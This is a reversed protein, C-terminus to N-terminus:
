EVNSVPLIMTFETGSGPKSEVEIKGHHGHVINQVTTLGLGSGGKKVSFFPEFLQHMDEQSIGRGNDKIIIKVQDDVEQVNLELIGKDPEMAEIANICLNLLAIKFQEGDLTLELANDPYSEKLSMNKLKIRDKVLLMTESILRVIPQRVLVLDKPKSSNLLDNILKGIRNSSRELINLYIDSDAVDRTIDKLEELALTINTLPNRIEHAITRAIKGTMSLKEAALIEKETQKRRTIDRIVGLYNRQQREEDFLSVCNILCIKKIGTNTILNVELEDMKEDSQLVKEFLIFDRKSFFLQQISTGLLQRQSIGFLDQLARNINLFNFKDDLLYIPDISEEFVKQYQTSKTEVVAETRKQNSIDQFTITLGDGLKTASIQFWSNLNDAKYQQVFRKFEGTNVVNKCKEFLGTDMSGPLLGLLRAGLLKDVELQVFESAAKNAFIWEFDIIDDNTDRVSRFAMIGFFASDVISNLLNETSTDQKHITNIM